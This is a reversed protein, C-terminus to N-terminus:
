KKVKITGDPHLYQTGSPLADYEAKSSVSRPAGASGAGLKEPAKPIPQAAPGRDVKGTMNSARGAEPATRNAAPPLLTQDFQRGTDRAFNEAAKQLVESEGPGGGRLFNPGVPDLEERASDMYKMQDATQTQRDHQRLLNSQQPTAVDYGQAIQAGVIEPPMMTARQAEPAEFYLQSYVATEDAAAQRRDNLSRSQEVALQNQGQYFAKQQDLLAREEFSLGAGQRRTAQQRLGSAGYLAVKMRQKQEPSLTGHLIKQGALNDMAKDFPVVKVYPDKDPDSDRNETVPATYKQGDETTIELDLMFGKGDPSPVAGVIRKDTIRKGDKTAGTGTMVQKRYLANMATLGEPSNAKVKGQLIGEAVDFNQSFGDELFDDNLDLDPWAKMLVEDPVEMGRAEYEAIMRGAEQVRAAKSKRDHDGMRADFLKGEREDQTRAMEMREDATEMNFQHSEEARRNQDIGNKIGVIGGATQIARQIDIM